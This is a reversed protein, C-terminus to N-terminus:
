RGNERTERMGKKVRAIEELARLHEAWMRAFAAREKVADRTSMISAIVPPAASLALTANGEIWALALFAFSACWSATAIWALRRWLTPKPVISAHLATDITILGAGFLAIPDMTPPTSM